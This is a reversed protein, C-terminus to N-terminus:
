KQFEFSKMFQDKGLELDVPTPISYFHLSVWFEIKIPRLHVQEHM